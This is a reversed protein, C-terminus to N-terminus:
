TGHPPHGKENSYEHLAALKHEPVMEDWKLVPKADTVSDNTRFRMTVIQQPRVPFRYRPARALPKPNGGLMDTLAASSHPLSLTIEATGPLGLCEAFRLEIENGTRRLAEVIVNDSTELFSKAPGVACRALLIPPCNYEWAMHPIRAQKWDGEHFVLAYELKHKGVGSLWSNPYGNYKATANYLYILPTRSNLERGTLGRDLLAVGGGSALAYHSWRVAPVIGKTWGPLEPNPKAWAGHSFGYPIGRRVENIDEALPFEAVVVTRDPIDNLETEFDIRPYGRHVRVLRRCMGGGFFTGAIEITTALPGETVAITHRHQNTSELRVRLPQPVMHDGAGGRQQIPREAVICNAAGGLMERGSPKLKLSTLAGTRSDIKLSCHQTEITMPLAIKRSVPAAPKKWSIIGTSPIEVQCVAGDCVFPDSRKWNLPNFLGAGDGAPLLTAGASQLMASSQKEIWTLRDKVDWSKEHEFVMGGAAGWLTNRDM